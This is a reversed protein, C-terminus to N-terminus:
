AWHIISLKRIKFDVDDRLRKGKSPYFTHLTRSILFWSFVM